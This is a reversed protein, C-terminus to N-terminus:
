DKRSQAQMSPHSAPIKQREARVARFVPRIKQLRRSPVPRQSRSRLFPRPARTAKKRGAATLGDPSAAQQMKRSLPVDTTTSQAPRETPLGAQQRHITHTTAISRNRDSFQPPVDRATARGPPHIRCNAQFLRTTRNPMRSKTQHHPKHHRNWLPIDRCRLRPYQPKRRIHRCHLRKTLRVPHRGKWMCAPRYCIGGAQIATLFQDIQRIEDPCLRQAHRLVLRSQQQTAIPLKRLKQGHKNRPVPHQQRDTGHQRRVMGHQRSPM